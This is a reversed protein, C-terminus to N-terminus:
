QFELPLPLIYKSFVVYNHLVTVCNKKLKGTINIGILLQSAM